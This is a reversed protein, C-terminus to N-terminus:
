INYKNAKNKIYDTVLIFRNSLFYDHLEKIYVLDDMIKEITYKTHMKLGNHIYSEDKVYVIDNIKFNNKNVLKEYTKIFKM